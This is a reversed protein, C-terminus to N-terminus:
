KMLITDLAVYGLSLVGGVYITKKLTDIEGMKEFMKGKFREWTKEGRRFFDRSTKIGAVGLYSTGFGAALSVVVDALTNEFM